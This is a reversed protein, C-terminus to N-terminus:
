LRSEATMEPYCIPGRCTCITAPIAQTNESSDICADPGGASVRAGTLKALTGAQSKPAADASDTNPRSGSICPGYVNYLDPFM